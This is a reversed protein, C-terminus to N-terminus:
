WRMCILNEGLREGMKSSRRMEEIKSRKKSALREKQGFAVAWESALTMEISLLTLLPSASPLLLDSM